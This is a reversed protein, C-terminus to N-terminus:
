FNVSVTLQAYRPSQYGTGQRYRPNLFGIDTEREDDVETVREQNFLNYVALKVRMDASGFSHFYSVNAGFDYIWPLRGGDGRHSAEYIRESPNESTCNAVCIFNSHYNTGDFPNGVGFANVPRGSQVVLTGGVAWNESFGYAGRFKFQHRRDNPLYGTGGYNVWPDDFNETRGTDSFDTDSNVPGEANGKSYSLTYSANFSWHDDWARDIQLELAKYTREPKSYGAEGVYNGDDDYLAWGAVATDITVYADNDGDCNTDTYVTADQGPNGMIYGIYGPEGDCLIGNSTLEMDDIANTLDRFIGRMGISWKDDIMSQFGLILEDQYVPDMNKDVEGRLDGVTGDGQSDDVPGIQAGLIPRQYTSGNFEFGELGNFAYFTRVDAFGGAQKINIVNAVPLFYRGLTGFIKTRGDGVTDWTFGLRPALMDSIKIYSDGDSNKNDFAEMRLGANLVFNPTVSWNDELYYASNITEFTGDVENTRTRVYATVGEPVVGGNALTAGPSTSRIEYLLREPGPYFQTHDSTNTEHDLGFRLLHDGLSWEFDLRAAERNDLRRAVTSTSTCGIDGDGVPRLDRIRSCNIDNLSSQAFERENEGYMAKMSFDDTLYGTYTASWNSGGNDLYRTNNFDNRQGNALDFQYIDTATNNGDGFALFELLHNDSIQWDLKTGWFGDDSKGKNILNGSSTTNTPQYDRAEYLAFFFLKDRIIPGSAYVNVNRRDYEDYSSIYTPNGDADYHDNGSTQAFSPEWVAEAGFKFENTGSQTVANIVGGTTRGFEVSYGGTKVQFEKYFAFPVSSFGVRNYFDTVNLGNIYVTNEAVSSGGFSIGGFEGQVVGPALLAVALPDREVPLRKLEERDINTASEVSTVDVAMPLASASVVITDLTGTATGVNVTTANGLSVTVNLPEALSQGDVTSQLQYNGVPLFPFRYNGNADATVTRSFGTDPSTVTIVAGPRTRGVLSGDSNAATVATSALMSLCAGLALCLARQAMTRKVIVNNM